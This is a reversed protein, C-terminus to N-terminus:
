DYTKKAEECDEESCKAVFVCLCLLKLLYLFPFFLPLYGDVSSYPCTLLHINKFLVLFVAQKKQVFVSARDREPTSRWTLLMRQGEPRVAASQCTDAGIQEHKETGYHQGIVHPFKIFSLKLGSEDKQFFIYLVTIVVDDTQPYIQRWTYFYFYKKM